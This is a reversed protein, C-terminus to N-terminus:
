VSYPVLVFPFRDPGLHRTDRTVLRLRHQVALAVQFADPLRLGHERRLRAAGDATDSDIRLIPFFDVLRKPLDIDEADFGALVEARTIVSISIRNRNSRLFQTAQPLGALHDILIVSDILLTLGRVGM